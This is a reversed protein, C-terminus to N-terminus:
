FHSPWPNPRPDFPDRPVQPSHSGTQLSRGCDKTSGCISSLFLWTSLPWKRGTRPCYGERWWRLLLRRQSINFVVDTRSETAESRYGNSIWHLGMFEVKSRTAAQRTHINLMLFVTFGAWKNVNLLLPVRCAVYTRSIVSVAGLGHFSPLM